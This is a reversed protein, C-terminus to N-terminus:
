PRRCEANMRKDGAGTYRLWMGQASHFERSAEAHHHPYHPVQRLSACMSSVGNGKSNSDATYQCAGLRDVVGLTGGTYAAASHYDLAGSEPSQSFQSGPLGGTVIKHTCSRATRSRTMMVNSSTVRTTLVSHSLGSCDQPSSHHRACLM